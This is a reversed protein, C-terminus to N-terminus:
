RGTIWQWVDRAGAVLGAARVAPFLDRRNDGNKQFPAKGDEAEQYYRHCTACLLSDKDDSVLM